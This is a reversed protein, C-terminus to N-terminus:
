WISNLRSWCKSWLTYLAKLTAPQQWKSLPFHTVLGIRNHHCGGHSRYTMSLCRTTDHTKCGGRTGMIGELLNLEPPV